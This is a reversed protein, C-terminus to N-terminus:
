GALRVSTARGGSPASAKVSVILNTFVQELLAQDGMVTPLPAISWSIARDCTAMELDSVVSDILPNLEIPVERLPGRATQSFSLLDDILQGMRISARSITEIHSQARESFQDELERSLLAAYGHIHRLPARLDHSVSYSFAELEKNAAELDRARTRLDAHLRSIRAEDEQRQTIDNFLVAVQRDGLQGFRFAYVDYTRGLPDARNQFRAPMGTIAVKGLNEIWHAELAPLLERIRKGVVSSLGTHKEFSPNVELFRFDAPKGDDDFIMEIICFGEDISTFLGRYRAESSRLAKQANREPTVDRFILVVGIVAGDRDHIPAASDAISRETGDRALLATHNALGQIAGTELVRDVPNPVALRTDENITCFVDAVAQGAADRMKWGTLQEAIPNMRTVRSDTDTVLVADGISNLTVALREESERLSAFAKLRSRFLRAAIVATISLLASLIGFVTRLGGLIASLERNSIESAMVLFADEATVYGPQDALHHRTDVRRWTLIGRASRQHGTARTMVRAWLAPESQALTTNQREPFMFGWETAPDDGKLVFGSANFVRLRHYVTPWLRQFQTFLHQGRYNIVYIGRRRGSQDFIPTALRVVPKRPEEVRGDEMNLSFASVFIQNPALENARAVYSRDSKDKLDNEPVIRGGQNVRFVELGSSDLFRLQDFKPQQRSIFAARAVSRELDTSRGTELYARLSDGTSLRRVDDALVRLEQEFLRAFMDVRTRERLLASREIQGAERLYTGGCFVLATGVLIGPLLLTTSWFERKRKLSSGM